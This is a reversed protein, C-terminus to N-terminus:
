ESCPELVFIFFLIKIASAVGDERRIKEGLTTARYKMESDAIETKPPEAGDRPFLKEDRLKHLFEISDVQRYEDLDELLPLDRLLQRDPNHMAFALFGAAASALLCAAVLLLWRRRRRPADAQTQEAEQRAAIAVMELTTHTFPEGVPATDLKDLLDWAREFSQLRRRVDPDSALLAEIRAANEASLEGDLYAVLEEDLPLPNNPPNDNM